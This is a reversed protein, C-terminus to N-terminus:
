ERRAAEDERARERLATSIALAASEATAENVLVAVAEDRDPFLQVLAYFTGASGNHWHVRGGGPEEAVVWGAAYDGGPPPTHLRQVTAARLVGDKGRLGALHAAAYRLLDDISGHVDGAPALFAGLDYEDLGQVRLSDGDRYHGRPQAPREATAPWGFGMSELRLPALVHARVLESWPKKAAREAMLGALAYGANSYHMEAGPAAIPEQALVERQFTARQETPTGPLGVLRSMDADDFTMAQPVGGRHWLLQELTVGRYAAGMELEPLAEAVTTTWDLTGAEILRGIMTATISKTVSGFHFLDGPLAEDESGHARVGVAAREVIKGARM